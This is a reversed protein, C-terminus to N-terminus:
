KSLKAPAAPVAEQLEEAHPVLLLVQEVREAAGDDVLFTAGLSTKWKVEPSPAIILFQGLPVDVQLNLDYLHEPYVYRIEREKNNTVEFRKRLSRV